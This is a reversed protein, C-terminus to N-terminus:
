APLIEILGKMGDRYHIFEQVFCGFRWIGPKNPVTFTLKLSGGPQLTPSFDGGSAIQYPAKPGVYTVHAEHPVFNDVKYPDSLTVDVGDWFDIAWADANMSGFGQFFALNLKRGITWEHWHTHSQNQLTVELRDGVRWTMYNPIFYYDFQYLNIKGSSVPSGALRRTLGVIDPKAFLSILAIAGLGIGGWIIQRRGWLQEVVGSPEQNDV